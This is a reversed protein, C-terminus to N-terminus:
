KEGTGIDLVQYGSPIPDPIPALYLRGDLTLRWQNHQLDIIATILVHAHYFPRTHDEGLRKLEEKFLNAEPFRM